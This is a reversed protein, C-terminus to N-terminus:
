GMPKREFPDYGRLERPRFRDSNSSAKRDEQASRSCADRWAEYRADISSPEDRSRRTPITEFADRSVLNARHTRSLNKADWSSSRFSRLQAQVNTAQWMTPDRGLSEIADDPEDSAHFTTWGPLSVCREWEPGEESEKRVVIRDFAFTGDLDKRDTTNRLRLSFSGSTLGRRRPLGVDTPRRDDM